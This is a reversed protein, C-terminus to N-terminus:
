GEQQTCRKGPLPLLRISKILGDFPTGKIYIGAGWLNVCVFQPHSHDTRVKAFNM